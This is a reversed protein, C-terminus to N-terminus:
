EGIADIVPANKTLFVGVATAAGIFWTIPGGWSDPIIGTFEALFSTSLLGVLGCAAVVAKRIQPITYKGIKIKSM